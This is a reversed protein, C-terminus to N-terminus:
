NFNQNLLNIYDKAVKIASFAKSSIIANQSLYNWLYDNTLIEKFKDAYSNIDNNSCIFGNYGDKIVSSSISESCVVPTGSSLAEIVSPSAVPINYISPVCVIKVSALLEIFKDSSLYGLLVIKEKIEKRLKELFESVNDMNGTLYLKINPISLLSFAKITAYPNKYLNTGIHLIANERFDSEKGQYKTINICTPIVKIENAKINIEKSLAEKVEITTAVIQNVKRYSFSKYLKRFLNINFRGKIEIDHSVAIVYSKFKIPLIGNLIIMNPKLQNIFKRGKTLWLFALSLYSMKSKSNLSLTKPYNEFRFYKKIKKENVEFSSIALVNYQQRILEDALAFIFINIGDPVDLHERRIIAILANNSM